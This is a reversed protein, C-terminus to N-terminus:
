FIRTNAIYIYIHTHSQIYQRYLIYYITYLIYYITYLWLIPYYLITIYLITICLITYYLITHIFIYIHNYRYYMGRSIPSIVMGWCSCSLWTQGYCMHELTNTHQLVNILFFFVRMKCSEERKSSFNPSLFFGSRGLWWFGLSIHFHWHIGRLRMKMRLWSSSKVLFFPNWYPFWWSRSIHIDNVYGFQRMGWWRAFM